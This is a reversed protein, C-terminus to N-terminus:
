GFEEAIGGIDAGEGGPPRRRRQGERMIRRRRLLHRLPYQFFPLPKHQPSSLEQICAIFCLYGPQVIYLGPIAHSTYAQRGPQTEAPGDATGCAPLTYPNDLCEKYRLAKKEM